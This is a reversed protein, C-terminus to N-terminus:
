GFLRAPAGFTIGEVLRKLSPPIVPDGIPHPYGGSTDFTIQFVQEFLSLPGEITLTLGSLPVDFGLSRLIYTAKIVTTEAPRYENINSATVTIDPDLLRKGSATVLYVKAMITPSSCM